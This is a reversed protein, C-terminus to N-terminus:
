FGLAHNERRTLGDEARNLLALVEQLRSRSRRFRVTVTGGEDEMELARLGAAGTLEAM